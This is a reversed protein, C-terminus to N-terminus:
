SRTPRGGIVNKEWLEGLSYGELWSDIETKSPRHFKSAPGARDVVILDEPQLQNVLTVSQTSLVIQTRQSASRFLSTLLVIAYPHLGLEPEDVVIMSPPYPQLLLTALAIFRLTGDSLAHANFYIDSGRERWELQIKQPNLPDPRLQFAEFFPAVMQIAAVIQQFERSHARELLYLFAALNAGDPRLFGNDGLDCPQKMRASASTDHFHYVKWSQLSALVHKAIGSRPRSAEEALGSETVGSALQVPYWPQNQFGTYWCSENALFLGGNAAPALEAKYGNEGFHLSIIMEQTHKQGFHLLADAGGARAVHVQLRKEYLDNLLGFLSVFNSKGAGNAGILVNLQALKLDLKEISKYGAVEIRDLSAM